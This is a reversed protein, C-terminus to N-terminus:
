NQMDAIDGVGIAGRLAGIHQAHQFGHGLALVGCQILCKRIPHQFHLVLGIQQAPNIRHFAAAGICHRNGGQCTFTQGGQTSGNIRPKRRLKHHQVNRQWGFIAGGDGPQMGM